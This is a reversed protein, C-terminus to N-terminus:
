PIIEYLINFENEIPAHRVASFGAEKCFEEVKSPPLGMTGLGEGGGALSTSMCHMVSTGYRRAGLSGFNGELSDACNIELMLYIGDPKLARHISKLASRPDALDHIVDFTTIIDYRRAMEESIDRQTFSVRDSVGESAAFRTASEVAPGYNDHGVFRSDPFAQAMRTVARGSGSGLDAVLAGAQLKQQVRPLAPLWQQVLLNDHWAATSRATGDVKRQDYASQPIGEGTRFAEEVRDILLWGSALLLYAGAMADVGEEQALVAAHEPSMSFRASAPDYDIYAACALSGLWERVYRENLGARVALEASTSPGASALHEFLGLRDGLSCMASVIAGKTDAGVLEKFEKLKAENM